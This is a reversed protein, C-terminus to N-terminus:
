YYTTRTTSAEGATTPQRDLDEVPIQRNTTINSRTNGVLDNDANTQANLNTSTSRESTAAIDEAGANRLIDQAASVQQSSDCHVSLLIGGNQVRGEYRRAEYEPIGLGALAGILGGAAGGVGLGALTALLPGAALLPGVGPIALAGLGALLGLTGGIAGGVTVGTTAGEPAKTNKETAFQSTSSPSSLLVSINQTSFGSNTLQSVASEAAARNALIGFVATNKTAM